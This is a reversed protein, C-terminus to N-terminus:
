CPHIIVPSTNNANVIGTLTDRFVEMLVDDMWGQLDLEHETADRNEYANRQLYRIFDM